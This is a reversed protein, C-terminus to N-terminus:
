KLRGTRAIKMPSTVKYNKVTVYLLYGPLAVLFVLYLVVILISVFVKFGGSFWSLEHKHDMIAEGNPTCVPDVSFCPEFYRSDIIKVESPHAKIIRYFPTIPSPSTTAGIYMEKTMYDEEKAGFACIETIIELLLPHQPKVMILANNIFGVLTAPFASQSVIFDSTALGPTASIPKFSKMDVDVTVGGFNYAVVYRGLDVRQVLHQFSDYKAVVDPGLISCQHRLGADDWQMHEYEPNLKHLLDVNEAFKAPLESWGQMWIQHTIRPVAEIAKTEIAKTEVAETEVAEVAEPM